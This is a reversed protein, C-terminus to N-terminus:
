APRTKRRYAAVAAEIQKDVAADVDASDGRAGPAASEALHDLAILVQIGRQVLQERDQEYDQPLIKGVAFDEDLDRLNLLIREYHNLLRETQKQELTRRGAATRRAFLPAGIWLGSIILITVVIVLSEISM